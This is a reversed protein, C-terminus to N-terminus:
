KKPQRKKPAPEAEGDHEHDEVIEFDERGEASYRDLLIVDGKKVLVPNTPLNGDEDVTAERQNEPLCCRPGDKLHPFIQDSDGIYRAHIPTRDVDPETV